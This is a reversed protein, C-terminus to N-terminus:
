HGVCSGTAEIEALCEGPDWPSQAKPPNPNILRNWAAALEADSGDPPDFARQIPIFKGDKADLVLAMWPPGDSVEIVWALLPTTGSAGVMRLTTMGLAGKFGAKRISAVADPLDVKFNPLIAAPVRFRDDPNTTGAFFQGNQPGGVWAVLTAGNSPSYLSIQFWYLAPSGQVEVWTIVADKRFTKHAQDLVGNLIASVHPYPNGATQVQTAKQAFSCSAALLVGFFSLWRWKM